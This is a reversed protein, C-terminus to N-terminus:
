AARLYGSGCGCQHDRVAEAATRRPSSSLLRGDFLAVEADPRSAEPPRFESAFSWCACATTASSRWWRTRGAQRWSSTATATSCGPASLTASGASRTALLVPGHAKATAVFAEAGASAVATATYSEDPPTLAVPSGFAAGPRAVSAVTQRRVPGGGGPETSISWSALASGDTPLTAQLDVAFIDEGL